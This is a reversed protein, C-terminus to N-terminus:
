MSEVYKLLQMFKMVANKYIYYTSSEMITTGDKFIIELRGHKHKFSYLSRYNLFLTKDKLDVRLFLLDKTLYLSVKKNQGLNTAVEKKYTKYDLLYHEFMRKVFLTNSEIKVQQNNIVYYSDYDGLVFYKIEKYNM